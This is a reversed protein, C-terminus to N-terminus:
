FDFLITDGMSKLTDNVFTEGSHKLEEPDTELDITDEFSGMRDVFNQYDNDM